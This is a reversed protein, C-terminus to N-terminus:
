ILSCTSFLNHFFNFVSDKSPTKELIVTTSAINTSKMMITNLLMNKMDEWAQDFVLSSTILVDNIDCHKHIKSRLTSTIEIKDRWQDSKTAVAIIPANCTDLALSKWQNISDIWNNQLPDFCILIATSDRLYFSSLSHYREQGATDFFTLSYWNNQYFYNFKQSTAGITPDISEDFQSTIIKALLTSKGVRSDGIVSIKIEPALDSYPNTDTSM